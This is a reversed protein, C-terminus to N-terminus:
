GLVRKGVRGRRFLILGLEVSVPLVNAVEAVPDEVVFADQMPFVEVLAMLGDKIENEPNGGFEVFQCFGEVAEGSEAMGSELRPEVFELAMPGLGSGWGWRGGAKEFCQVVGEIRGVPRFSREAVTPAPLDEGERVFM